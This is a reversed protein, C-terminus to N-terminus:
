KQSPLESHVIWQAAYYLYHRRYRKLKIFRELDKNLVKNQNLLLFVTCKEMETLVWDILFKTIERHDKKIANRIVAHKWATVNCGLNALYEVAKLHGRSAANRFSRTLDRQKVPVGLETFYKMIDIRGYLAAYRFASFDNREIVAGQNVLYKVMELNGHMTAKVIPLSKIGDSTKYLNVDFTKIGRKVTEFDAEKLARMFSKWSLSMNRWILQLFIENKVIGQIGTIKIVSKISM